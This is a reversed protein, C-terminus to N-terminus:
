GHHEGPHSVGPASAGLHRLLNRVGRGKTPTNRNSWLGTGPWFDVRGDVILHAGGNKAVFPVGAAALLAAGADRNSARKEAQAAKHARWMESVENEEPEPKPRKVPQALAAHKGGMDRAHHLLARESAFPRSCISCKFPKM